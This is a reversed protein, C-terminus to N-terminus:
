SITIDLMEDDHWLEFCQLTRKKKELFAAGRVGVILFTATAMNKTGITMDAEHDGAMALGYASWAEPAPPEALM